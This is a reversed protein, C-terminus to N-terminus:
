GRSRLVYLFYPGTPPLPGGGGARVNFPFVSQGVKQDNRLGGGYKRVAFEIFEKEAQRIEVDSSTQYIVHMTSWLGKQVTIYVLDDVERRDVEVGEHGYQRAQPNGAIGVKYLHGKTEDLIKQLTELAMKKDKTVLSKDGCPRNLASWYRIDM